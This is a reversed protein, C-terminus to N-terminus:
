HYGNLTSNRLRNKSFCMILINWSLYKEKIRCIFGYTVTFINEYINDPKVIKQSSVILKNICHM